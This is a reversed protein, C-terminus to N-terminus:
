EVCALMLQKDTQAKLHGGSWFDQVSCWDIDWLFGRATANFSVCSGISPWGLCWQLPFFEWL